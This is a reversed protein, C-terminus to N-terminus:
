VNEVRFIWQFSQHQVSVVINQDGSAFLRSMPFSGSARFSQPCSSFPTVSSSIAPHCWQSLPRQTQVFEPLYHLVPFGPTSAAWPQWSDSMVLHSFFLLLVNIFRVLFTDWTKVLPELFQSNPRRPHRYYDSITETVMILIFIIIFFLFENASLFM